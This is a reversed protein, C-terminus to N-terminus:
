QTPFQPPNEMTWNLWKEVHAKIDPPKGIGAYLIEMSRLDVDLNFGAVSSDFFGAFGAAGPDLVHTHTPRHKQVWGGLDVLEAPRGIVPGEVLATLFLAGREAMSRALPVIEKAEENCPTCWVFALLIHLVRYPTGAVSQNRLEPDFYEALSIAEPAGPLVVTGPAAARHGQFRANRIISGPIGGARPVVGLNKTPYAVGYRNTDSGDAGTSAAGTPADATSSCGLAMVVVCLGLAHTVARFRERM